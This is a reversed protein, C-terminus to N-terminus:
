EKENVENDAKIIEKLLRDTDEYPILKEQMIDDCLDKLYYYIAGKSDVFIGDIIDSYVEIEKNDKNTDVVWIKQGIQYKTKIVTGGIELNEYEKDRIVKAGIKIVLDNACGECGCKRRAVIITLRIM